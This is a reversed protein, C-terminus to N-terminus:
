KPIPRGMSEYIGEIMEINNKATVNSPDVLNAERYLQLAKPYKEKAPLKPSTMVETAYEVTAEVYEEKSAESKAKDYASKAVNYANELSALQDSGTQSTVLQAPALIVLALLTPSIM